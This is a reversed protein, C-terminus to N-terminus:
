ASPWAATQRQGLVLPRGMPAGKLMLRRCQLGREFAM